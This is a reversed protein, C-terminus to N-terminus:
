SRDENGHPWYAPYQMVAFTHPTSASATRNPDVTNYSSFDQAFETESYEPAYRDPLAAAGDSYGQMNKLFWAGSTQDFVMDADVHPIPLRQGSVLPSEYALNRDRQRILVVKEQKKALCWQGFAVALREPYFCRVHEVWCYAMWEMPIAVRIGIRDM